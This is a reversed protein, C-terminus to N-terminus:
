LEKFSPYYVKGWDHNPYQQMIYLIHPILTGLIRGADRLQRRNSLSGHTAGGHVIQNRLTYLHDFLVLLISDIDQAALANRVRRQAEVFGDKWVSEEIKGNQYDWFPQFTHPNDLMLRIHNSYTQWVMNYIRKKKDMHCVTHLFARFDSRDASMNRGDIEKAYAANFSIWLAIFRMDDDCHDAQKLWSLSRGVRLRFAEPYMQGHQRYFDDAEKVDTKMLFEKITSIGSRVAAFLSVFVPAYGVRVRIGIRVLIGKCSINQLSACCLFLSAAFRM